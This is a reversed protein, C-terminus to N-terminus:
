ENDINLQKRWWRVERHDRDPLYQSDLVNISRTKFTEFDLMLEEDSFHHRHGWGKVIDTSGHGTRLLAHRNRLYDLGMYKYHLTLLEDTAPYIVNGTPKAKHRGISYNTEEIANPNFISLKSMNAFPIGITLFDCLREHTIPFQDAIMQFGLSPILTVGLAKKDSLYMLLSQHWLHEDIDTTIVWDCEGRSEKWVTNYHVQESLVFSDKLERSFRRIEVKSHKELMDLTGDTSGSDYFVYREVIPDYHKFFFPLMREENWSITYLHINLM